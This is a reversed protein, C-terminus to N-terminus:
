ETRQKKDKIRYYDELNVDIRIKADPKRNSLQLLTVVEVHVTNPFMDVPQIKQPLYCAEEEEKKESLIKLDRALTASDCSIYVIRSPGTKKIAELLKRECGKRPPDLVVVTNSLDAKRNSSEFHDSDETEDSLGGSQKEAAEYYAPFIEEARGCFFGANQIGNREANSIADSIADPIIEVGKM